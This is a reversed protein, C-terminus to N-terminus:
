QPEYRLGLFFERGPQNFGRATEYQKDAVNNVRANLSWAPAFQWDSRLDLTAYGALKYKNAADDFRQSFSNLSAGLNVSNGLEWDGQLKFSDKARRPLLNGSTAVGNTANHPNVHDLSASLKVTQLSLEYALSIGESRARPTNVPAPGSSIFNRYRNDFLAAKLSQTGQKWRLSLEAHKGEEPLLTPTGFGPYYLQNFSPATFSTGYSAGLRLAPTLAYGWGLAGTNQKGFQSNDDMRLSAQWSHDGSSGNLGLGLGNINRESVTFADGPRSVKQELRELLALATGVPTDLSNEWSFQRQETEIAGLQTFESASSLTDYKDTSRSASLKSQWTPMLQGQLRLSQLSNSLKARSDVKPGDDFATNGTSSIALGELRWGQAIQWGVNLSGGTQRFGDKDSNYNGFQASENTTSFGDTDTHQVQVAVDLGQHGYALGGSLKGYANTGVVASANPHLGARGSRTFIQIVGGMANSGYLASMPGRVIEIREIIEMPLNDLSATGVTASSVRVGDILLLTHRAELGRIFLSASKGLGGNSSFQIGPQQSLLEVLTRGETKEIDSRSLVTVDAVLQDVRSATRTASVVIPELKSSPGAMQAM